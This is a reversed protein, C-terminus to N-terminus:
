TFSINIEMIFVLATKEAKDIMMATREAIIEVPLPSPDDACAMSPDIHLKTYGAKVYESVLVLSKEVADKSSLHKWVNPGLHDGALIYDNDKINYIEAIARVKGSFDQPTMGTYGGDQNVQQVTSEISFAAEPNKSLFDFAAHIVDDHASCICILGGKNDKRNQLVIENIMNFRMNFMIVFCYFIILM